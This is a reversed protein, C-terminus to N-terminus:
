DTLLATSSLVDFYKKLFATKQKKVQIGKYIFIDTIYLNYIGYM